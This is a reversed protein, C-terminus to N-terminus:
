SGELRSPVSNQFAELESFPWRMISLFGLYGTLQGVAEYTGLM